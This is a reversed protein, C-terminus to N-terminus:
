PENSYIPMAQHEHVLRVRRRGVPMDDLGPAKGRASSAAGWAPTTPTPVVHREGGSEMAAGHPPIPILGM